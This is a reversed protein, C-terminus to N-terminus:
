ISSKGPPHSLEEGDLSYSVAIKIEKLEDLIDLKTVALATYGNIM